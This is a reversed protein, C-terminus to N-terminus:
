SWPEDLKLLRAIDRRALTDDPSTPPGTRLREIWGDIFAEFAEDQRSSAGGEEAHSTPAEDIYRFIAEKNRPQPRVRDLQWKSISTQTTGGLAGLRILRQACELQTDGYADRAAVFRRHTQEDWAGRSAVVMYEM